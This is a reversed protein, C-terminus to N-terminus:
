VTVTTPLSLCSEPVVEEDVPLPYTLLDGPEHYQPPPQGSWSILHYSRPSVDLPYPGLDILTSTPNRRTSSYQSKYPVMTRPPGPSSTLLTQKELGYKHLRYHFRGVNSTRPQHGYRWKSTDPLTITSQIRTNRTRVIKCFYQHRHVYETRHLRCTLDKLVRTLPYIMHVTFEKQHGFVRELIIGMFRREKLINSVTVQTPKDSHTTHPRLTTRIPPPVKM